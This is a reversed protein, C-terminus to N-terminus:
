YVMFCLYPVKPILTLSSCAPLEFIAIGQTNKIFCANASM